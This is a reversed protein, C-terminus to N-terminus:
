KEKNKEEKMQKKTKASGNESVSDESNETPM